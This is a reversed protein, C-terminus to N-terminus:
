LYKILQKYKKKDHIMIKKKLSSTNYKASKFFVKYANGYKLSFFNIKKKDNISNLFNEDHNGKLCIVKKERLLNICKNLEYYYGVYDGLAIISDVKKIKIKKFFVKLADYNGHIDSIVYIM